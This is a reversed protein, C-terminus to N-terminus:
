WTRLDPTPQVKAVEDMGRAVFGAWLLAIVGTVLPAAISLVLTSTM